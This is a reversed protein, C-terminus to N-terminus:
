ALMEARLKKVDAETLVPLCSVIEALTLKGTQLLKRAAEFALEIKGEKLLQKRYQTMNEALMTEAKGM